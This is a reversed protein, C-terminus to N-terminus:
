FHLLNYIYKLQLFSYSYILIQKIPFWKDVIKITGYILILSNKSINLFYCNKSTSFFINLCLYSRKYNSLKNLNNLAISETYRRVIRQLPKDEKHIKKKLHGLYSEFKFTSFYDLSGYNEVDDVLHLLGHINYSINHKDYNM